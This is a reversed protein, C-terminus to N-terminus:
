INNALLDKLAPVLDPQKFVFGAASIKDASVKSGALVVASMDGMALRLAFAPVPMLLAKIDKAEAIAEALRYNSVPQPSVGNYIGNTQPNELLFAFMRCLDDLHIWSYYQEGSGFYAGTRLTYSPLMKALAGGQTSLVIGIRVTATRIGMASISQVSEEWRRCIYAMFDTDPAAPSTETCLTEGTDGYYGVASASLFVKPQLQHEALTDHLLKASDIRSSLLEKKRSETWRGDAIGAGALHIIGDAQKIAEIAAPSLWQKNVDWAYAPYIASLNEHRSLHSVKHGANTLILSLRSGVLGTGGTIIINM